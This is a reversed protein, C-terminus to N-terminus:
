IIEILSLFEQEIAGQPIIAAHMQLAIIPDRYRNARRKAMGLTDANMSRYPPSLSDM